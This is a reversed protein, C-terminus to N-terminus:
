FNIMKQSPSLKKSKKKKKTIKIIEKKFCLIINIKIIIIIKGNDLVCNFINAIGISNSDKLVKELDSSLEDKNKIRFGTVSYEVDKATHVIIFCERTGKPTKFNGNTKHHKMMNNLLSEDTSAISSAEDLLNFIGLPPGELLDIIHKNDKYTLECLYDKLGEKIFENLEAKFVYTIYLQQLKENAFNICLQEFSNKKLVEFGFIDLLGISFRSKNNILEEINTDRYEPTSISWNLKKIM